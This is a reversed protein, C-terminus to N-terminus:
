KTTRKAKKSECESNLANIWLRRGADSFTMDHEEAYKKVAKKLSYEVYVKCHSDRLETPDIFSSM